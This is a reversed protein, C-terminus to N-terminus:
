SQATQPITETVKDKKWIQSIDAPEGNRFEDLLQFFRHFADKEDSSHFLIIQEWGHASTIKYRAQIWDQFGSFEEEQPTDPLQSETRSCMYGGLFASLRTVSVSGLYMGPRQRIRELLDYLYESRTDIPRHNGNTM